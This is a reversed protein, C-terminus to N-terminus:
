ASGFLANGANRLRSQVDEISNAVQATAADIRNEMTNQTVDDALGTPEQCTPTVPPGGMGAFRRRNWFRQDRSKSTYQARVAITLIVAIVLLSIVGYFVSSPVLGMRQVYLLPATITLVIFTLQLVFLTDRKNEAAWDNMEVQRKANQSNMMAADASGRANEYVKQQLSDLDKNRVHYYLINKTTNSARTLDGFVKQFNDSHERTVTNYLESKRDTIFQNLKSPDARLTNMANALQVDQLSLVDQINKQLAM